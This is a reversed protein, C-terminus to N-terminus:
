QAPLSLWFRRGSRTEVLLRHNRVVVSYRQGAFDQDPRDATLVESPLLGPVRALIRWAGGRRELVDFRWPLLYGAGQTVLLQDRGDGTLDAAGWAFWGPREHVANPRAPDPMTELVWREGDFRNFVTWHTGPGELPAVAPAPAELRSRAYGDTHIYGYYHNVHAAIRLGDLEFWELHHHISCNALPGTWRSPLARERIALVEDAVSCGGILEAYRVGAAVFTFLFGKNRGGNDTTGSVWTLDTV